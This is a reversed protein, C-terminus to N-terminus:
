SSISSIDTIKIMPLSTSLNNNEESKLLVEPMYIYLVSCTHGFNSFVMNVEAMTKQKKKQNVWYELLSRKLLIWVFDWGREHM